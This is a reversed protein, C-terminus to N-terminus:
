KTKNVEYAIKCAEKAYDVAIYNCISIDQNLKAAENFCKNSWDSNSVDECYQWDLNQPSYIIPGQYCVSKSSTDELINCASPNGYKNAYTFVCNFRNTDALLHIDECGDLDGTALSYNTYCKWRQDLTLVNCIIHDEESIAYNSYCDLAYPGELNTIKSCYSYDDEFVSYLQYCYETKPGETLTKCYDEDSTTSLCALSIVEDSILECGDVDSNTVSYNLLCEDNSKCKSPDNENVAHCLNQDLEAYCPDVQVKCELYGESLLLDCLLANDDEMAFKTVCVKKKEMDTVLKCADLSENSFYEFCMQTITSNMIPLCASYNNGNIANLYICDDGCEITTNTTNTLNSTSNNSPIIVPQDSKQSLVFLLAGGFLIVLILLLSVAIVVTTSEDKKRFRYPNKKPNSVALPLLSDDKKKFRYSKNKVM